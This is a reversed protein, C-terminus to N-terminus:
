HSSLNISEYMCDIDKKWSQIDELARSSLYTKKERKPIHRPCDDMLGFNVNMPEYRHRPVTRTHRLLGGIATTTPPLMPIQGRCLLGAMLAIALGSATSEIYGEVGSIQGAFFIHPMTKSRCFQDLYRPADVYTNRHISGFRAFEAKELGPIMRFIREQESYSMKTQFGVMNYLTEEKNETRLQVVAFPARGTSPDILGVPKMPGYALTDPGRRALEEIPLCGEFYKSDEFPHPSVKKADLIAAVFSRYTAEDMPANLYDGEQTDYRSARFLKSRDLSEAYIIPAIADYFTLGEGGLHHEIARALKESTLPGTAIIAPGDKEPPLSHAERREITVNPHSQLKETILVSFENRDVALARGAPVRTSLAAEIILSNLMRMEEKLIGAAAQLSYSRLSNSCVLEGLNVSVHAPSYKLPKMEILLVKIDRSALQWAAECGALGGGIITIQM